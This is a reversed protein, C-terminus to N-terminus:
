RDCSARWGPENAARDARARDGAGAPAAAARVEAQSMPVKGSARAQMRGDLARKCAMCGWGGSRTHMGGEEGEGRRHRAWGAAHTPGGVVEGVRMGSVFQHVGNIRAVTEGQDENYPRYGPLKGLGKAVASWLPEQM